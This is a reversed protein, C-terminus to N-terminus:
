LSLLRHEPPVPYCSCSSALASIFPQDAVVVVLVISLCFISPLSVCRESTSGFLHCVPSPQEVWQSCQVLTCIGPFKRANFVCLEELFSVPPCPRCLSTWICMPASLPVLGAFHLGFKYLFPLCVLAEGCGWGCEPGTRGRGRSDARQRALHGDLSSERKVRRAYLFEGIYWFCRTEM